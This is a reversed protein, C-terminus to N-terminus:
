GSFSVSIVNGDRATVTGAPAPEALEPDTLSDFKLLLACHAEHEEATVRELNSTYSDLAISILDVDEATLGEVTFTRM